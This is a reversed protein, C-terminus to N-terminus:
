SPQRAILRRWWCQRRAALRQAYWESTKTVGFVPPHASDIRIVRPAPMCVRAPAAM